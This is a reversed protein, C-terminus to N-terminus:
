PPDSLTLLPSLQQPQACRNERNERHERHERIRPARQNEAIRNHPKGINITAQRSIVEISNPNLSDIQEYAQKSLHAQKNMLEEIQAKNLRHDTDM